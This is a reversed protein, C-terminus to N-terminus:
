LLDDELGSLDGLDSDEDEELEGLLQEEEETLASEDGRDLDSLEFDMDGEAEEEVAQPEVKVWVGYRELDDEDGGPAETTVSASKLVNDLESDSLAIEEEDSDRVPEGENKAMRMEQSPYEM